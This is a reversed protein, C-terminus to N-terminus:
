LNQNSWTLFEAISFVAFLRGQGAQARLWRLAGATFGNGDAIVITSCPYVYDINAVLYCLKEEASGGVQQWKSEIILGNPFPPVSALYFDVQLEKDFISKGIRQQREPTYGKRRLLGDIIAEAAQGNDNAKRGSTHLM